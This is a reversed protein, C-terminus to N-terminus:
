PQEKDNVKGDDSALLRRLEEREQEALQGDKLLHAVLHHASGDFVRDLLKQLLGTRAVRRSMGASWLYGRPGQKRKVLKKQLMVKLVTAVTTTAVQRQERLASCVQGLSCPGADWLVRLVELEGDTPQDAPRRAM